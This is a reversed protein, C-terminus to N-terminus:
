KGGMGMFGRILWRRALLYVVFMPLGSLVVAALLGPVNVSYESSYQWLAMPLVRLNEDDTLILPFLLGNWAHLGAYIGVTAIAARSMPIVLQFLIRATKAGDLVAAEYMEESIDRMASVLVLVSVPMSFAVTPLVIAVLTDYMRAETIMLYVPIIVAQAPIALGLLFFRFGASVLRSRSRVITWGTPVALALTLASSALTVIVTNSLYQFFDLEFVSTYNEFNLKRPLALPGSDLYEDRTRFTSGIMIYLPIGVIALWVLAALGALFNPPKRGTLRRRQPPRSPPQGPRAAHHPVRIDPLTSSM